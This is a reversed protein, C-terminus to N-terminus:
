LPGVEGYYNIIQRVVKKWSYEGALQYALKGVETRKQSNALLEHLVQALNGEGPEGCLYISQGRLFMEKFAPLSFAVVPKATAMAELITIGFSAKTTPFCFIDATRYYVSRGNYIAGVFIVDSKIKKPVMAQYFNKMPGDGVIILRCDQRTQRIHCFAKILYELGSRPELRALFLINLKGDQFQPITDGEPHFYSTDIGNPIVKFDGKFYQFMSQRCAESVAIKGHMGDLYKQVIRRGLKLFLGGNNVTHFTGVVCAPYAYRQALLPLMPVVPPHVHILDFQERKFIERLKRGLGFGMTISAIAGQSYVPVSKGLYILNIEKLDVQTIKGADPTILVVEHGLEKLGLYLNHTHETIGGITPYYYETILAIKM